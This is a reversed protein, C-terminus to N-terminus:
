GKRLADAIHERDEDTVWWGCPIHTLRRYYTDLGPMPRRMPAFVTHYHNPRHLKSASVGIEALRREVAESDDSFVSYLWYSPHSEPDIRTVELGPIKRIERNFFNGNDIHREIRSEITELQALGITATVNSMNYKFGVCEIDVETRPVGKAMGFWRLKRAQTAKAPDRMTLMGGDVTTMHKIAQLSYIAYDGITGISQGGYSAGLSHAADEILAIGHLDAIRRLSNLDAPFGAYHVVLIARTRPTVLSEVSKPDLNGTEPDVDAFVPTANCQLIVTNTPEATMSTTIVEDGPAVGALLLATHLAGTGSSMGLALPLRFIRAFEAEFRYVYEGEAIMGSYLAEELAPMLREKPPMAVKVLPILRTSNSM